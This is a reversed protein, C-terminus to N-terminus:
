REPTEASVPDSAPFTGELAADLDDDPETGPAPADAGREPPQPRESM